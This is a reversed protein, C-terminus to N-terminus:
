GLKKIKAAIQKEMKSPTYSKGRRSVSKKDEIKDGITVSAQEMLLDLAQKNILAEDENETERQYVVMDSAVTSAASEGMTSIVSQMLNYFDFVSLWDGGLREVAERLRRDLTILLIEKGKNREVFGIIWDDASSKIGVEIIVVGDKVVRHAHTSSGGDFVLIIDRIGSKQYKYIGLQKILVQRHKDLANKKGPFIHNLLNYADILIIM